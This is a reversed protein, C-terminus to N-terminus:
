RFAGLASPHDGDRPMRGRRGGVVELINNERLGGRFFFGVAMSRAALEAPDDFLV